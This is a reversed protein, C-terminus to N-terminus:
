TVNGACLPTKVTVKALIGKVSVSGAPPLDAPADSVVVAKAREKEQQLLAMREKVTLPRAGGDAESM